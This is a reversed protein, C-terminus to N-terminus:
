HPDGTSPSERPASAPVIRLLMGNREDDTLLYLYGDPGTRVDRIRARLGVFMRAEEYLLGTQSGVRVRVLSRSALGGVFFRGSWDPYRTGRYVALGSPAISPAWYFRSPEMGPAFTRDTIVSGDYDIGHSVVPWGYNLGPRLLNIEDGGRPGHEDAWLIGTEPDRAIGQINRHGLTWIEPAFGVRGIFPNDPPAAGDRTLRLIKGLHSQPDQAATRYNFGDGVTLLLTNDPLFLLRGGPHDTGRKAVNVRFIVRGNVLRDGSLEARWIATRNDAENGEVFALYVLRNRAFDPDLAVDLYGSDEQRLVDQPLGALSPGVTGERTLIRMGDHKEVILMGGDPLFAMSWPFHLGAVVQQLDVNDEPPILVRDIAVAASRASQAHAGAALACIAGLMLPLAIIRRM